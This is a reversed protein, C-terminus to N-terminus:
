IGVEFKFDSFVLESSEHWYHGNVDLAKSSLETRQPEDHYTLCYMLYRVM